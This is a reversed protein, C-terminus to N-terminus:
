FHYYLEHLDFTLYAYFDFIPYEALANKTNINTHAKTRTSRTNELLISKEKGAKEMTGKQVKRPNGARKQVPLVQTDEVLVTQHTMGQDENEERREKVRAPCLNPVPIGVDTTWPPVHGSFENQIKGGGQHTMVPVLSHLLLHFQYIVEEGEGRPRRTRATKVPPAVSMWISEM